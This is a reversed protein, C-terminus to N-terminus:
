DDNSMVQLLGAMRNLTKARGRRAAVFATPTYKQFALYLGVWCHEKRLQLLTDFRTLRGATTEGPRVGGPFSDVGGADSMRFPSVHYMFCVLLSICARRTM